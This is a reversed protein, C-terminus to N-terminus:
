REPPTPRSRPQPNLITPPNILFELVETLRLIAPQNDKEEAYRLQFCLIDMETQKKIRGIERFIELCVETETEVKLGVQLEDIAEQQQTLLRRIEVMMPSLVVPPRQFQDKTTPEESVPDDNNGPAASLQSMALLSITLIMIWRTM